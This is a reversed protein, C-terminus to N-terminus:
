GGGFDRYCALWADVMAESTFREEFRKRGASGMRRRLDPSELVAQLGEALAGEDRPPVLRGTVDDEVLEFLGGVASAVVPRGCSMAEAAAVGFAERYSPMAVVDGVSFWLAVDEQHGVFHVPVEPHPRAIARLEPEYPGEGAIVLHVPGPVLPAARLLTALGKEERLRSVASIVRANEPIGLQARLERIEDATVPRLRNAANHAVRVRDPSVGDLRVAHEAASRSCALTVDNLRSAARSLLTLNRNGDFVLHQRHFVGLEGAGVRRALGGIVAPIPETGQIVEARHRRAVRALRVAGVGYGRSSRCGLAFAPWGLGRVQDQLDGAGFVSGVAVEVGRDRLAPLVEDWMRRADTREMLLILRM